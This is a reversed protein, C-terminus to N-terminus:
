FHDVFHLVALHAILRSRDQSLELVIMIKDKSLELFMDKERTNIGLYLYDTVVPDLILSTM